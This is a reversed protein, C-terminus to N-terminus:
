AAAPEDVEADPAPKVHVVVPLGLEGVRYAVAAEKDDAIGANVLAEATAADVQLPTGTVGLNIASSIQGATTGKNKTAPTGLLALLLVIVVLVYQSVPDGLTASWGGVALGPPPAGLLGADGGTVNAWGTAIRQAVLALDHSVFVTAFGIESRLDNLLDLIQAQVTVDLATTPEDAIILQPDNILAMAIMARQRMGGSFEFPYQDARRKPHPIGVRDLMEIARTHAVSKSVQHHERYAERLQWGVTFYPHLSSQPDQFIISAVQGRIKRMDDQSRGVIQEGGLTISGTIITRKPDHLGMIAMSSVSKGSGSEGVIGLTKGRALDFSLGDVSRVLGDDTPFHVQLDRVSLYADAPAPGLGGLVPSAVASM